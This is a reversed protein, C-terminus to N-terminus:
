AVLTRVLRKFAEGREVFNRFMDWSACAPSLLVTDGPRARRVAACVADEFTAAQEYSPRGPRDDLLRRLAPATQGLLVVHRVPTSCIKEVLGDFPLKKDYGGLILVFPGELAELARVTSDPVTSKSDNYYKVGRAECVFELRHEVGAFSNFVRECAARWAAPELLPWTACAAAMMNRLNFEGPLRRRSIDIEWRRGDVRVHLTDGVVTAGREHAGSLSFFFTRSPSSFARVVADEANLVKTDSANQHEVIVRKAAAYREMTKHRDLHNPLLNTVVAVHPSRELAALNELQFSSLELVVPDTAKIDRVDELLSRGINGGLWAHAGAERLIEYVLMTTTTKGASGTVGVIRQSRCLKFFLNMETDIPINKEAARRLLPSDPDVAPSPMVLDARDVDSITHAGLRFKIKLGKLKDLSDKLERAPKLDTVTIRAGHRALYRVLGVQGGFFGLGVVLVHRGKLKPVSPLLQM